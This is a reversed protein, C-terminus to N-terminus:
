TLCMSVVSVITKDAIRTATLPDGRTIKELAAVAEIIAPRVEDLIVANGLTIGLTPRLLDQLANKTGLVRANFSLNRAPRKRPSQTAQAPAAAQLPAPPSPSAPSPSADAATRFAQLEAAASTNNPDFRNALTYSALAEVTDGSLKQLHGMQLHTDAHNPRLDLARRYASRARTFNGAEKSMNGLQVWISAEGPNVVLAAEYADAAVAWDRRDRAADAKAIIASFDDTRRRVLKILSRM